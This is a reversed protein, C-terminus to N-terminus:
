PSVKVKASPVSVSTTVEAVSVTVTLLVEVKAVTVPRPAVVVVKTLKSPPMATSVDFKVTDPVVPSTKVAPSRAKFPPSKVVVAEVKLRTLAAVVRFIPEVLMARAILIPIPVSTSVILRPVPAVPASTMAIPWAAASTLKVSALQDTVPGPTAENVPRVEVPLTVKDLACIRPAEGNTSSPVVSSLIVKIRAKVSGVTALLVMVKGLAEPVTAMEAVEGMVKDAKPSMPQAVQRAELPAIKVIVSPTVGWVM